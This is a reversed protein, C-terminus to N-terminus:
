EKKYYDSQLIVYVNENPGFGIASIRYKYPGPPREIGVAGQGSSTSQLFRELIYAPNKAPQLGEGLPSFKRETFKGYSVATPSTGDAATRLDFTPDYLIPTNENKPACLGLYEDNGGNTSECGDAIFGMALGEYRPTGKKAREIDMVADVVAAMASEKAVAYDRWYRTSQSSLLSIQAAAVGLLLIAVLIVLIVIISMGRQKTRTLTNITMKAKIKYM